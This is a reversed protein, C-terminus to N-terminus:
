AFREGPPEVPGARLALRVLERPSWRRQPEAVVAVFTKTISGARLRDWARLHVTPHLVADGRAFVSRSTGDDVLVLAGPSGEQVVADLLSRLEDPAPAAPTTAAPLLFVTAAVLASARIRGM